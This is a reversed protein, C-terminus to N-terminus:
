FRVHVRVPWEGTVDFVKVEYAEARYGASKWNAAHRPAEETLLSRRVELVESGTVQRKTDVVYSDPDELRLEYTGDLTIAEPM